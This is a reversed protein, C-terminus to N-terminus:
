HMYKPELRFKYQPYRKRADTIVCRAEALMDFLMGYPAWAKSRPAKFEITYTM